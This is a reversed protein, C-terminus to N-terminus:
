LFRISERRSCRRVAASRLLLNRMTIIITIVIANRACGRRATRPRAVGAPGIPRPTPSPAVRSWVTEPRRDAKATHVGPPCFPFFSFPSIGTRAAHSVCATRTLEDDTRRFPVRPFGFERCARGFCPKKGHNLELDYVCMGYTPKPGIM